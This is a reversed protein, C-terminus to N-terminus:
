IKLVKKTKRSLINILIVQHFIVQLKKINLNAFTQWLFFGKLYPHNSNKPQPRMDYAGLRDLKTNMSM